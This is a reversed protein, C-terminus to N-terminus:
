APTARQRILERLSAEMREAAPQSTRAERDRPHDQLEDLRISTGNALTIRVADDDVVRGNVVEAADIQDIGFPHIFAIGRPSVVIQTPVAKLGVWVAPLLLIATVIAGFLPFFALAVLGAYVLVWLSITTVFLYYDAKKRLRHLATPIREAGVLAGALREAEDRDSLLLRTVRTHREIEVSWRDGDRVVYVLRMKGAPIRKRKGGATLTLGSADAEATADRPRGLSLVVAFFAAIGGGLVAFVVKATLTISAATDPEQVAWAMGAVLAMSTLGLVALPLIENGAQRVEVDCKM